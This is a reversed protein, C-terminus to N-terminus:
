RRYARRDDSVDARLVEIQLDIAQQRMRIRHQREEIDSQERSMPRGSPESLGLAHRIAGM